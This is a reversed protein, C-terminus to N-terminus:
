WLSFMKNARKTLKGEQKYARRASIQLSDAASGEYQRAFLLNECHLGRRQFYGSSRALATVGMPEGGSCYGLDVDFLTFNERLLLALFRGYELFTADDPAWLRSIHTEILVQDVSAFFSPNLMMTERYVSYECGECDMKLVSIAQPSPAFPAVVRVLAAPSLRVWPMPAETVLTLNACNQFVRSRNKRPDWGVQSECEFHPNPVGGPAGWPRFHVGPGLLESHRRTPDLAYITCGTRRALDLEFTYDDEVGYSLALCGPEYSRNCMVHGGYGISSKWGGALVAECVGARQSMECSDHRPQRRRRKPYEFNEPFLLPPRTLRLTRVILGGVLALARMAEADQVAVPTQRM